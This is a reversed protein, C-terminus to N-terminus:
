IGFLPDLYRSQLYQMPLSDTCQALKRELFRKEPESCRLELARRFSQAAAQCNGAELLLSGEVAPLLYYNQLSDESALAKLESLAQETGNVKAVAVIRNLAVVPSPCQRLLQTYLELIM